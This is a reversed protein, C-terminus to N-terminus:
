RRATKWSPVSPTPMMEWLKPPPVVTRAHDKAGHLKVTILFKKNNGHLRCDRINKNFNQNSDPRQSVDHTLSVNAGWGAHRVETQAAHVRLAM